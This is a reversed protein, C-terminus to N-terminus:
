GSASRQEMAAETPAIAAATLRILREADSPAAAKQDNDFFCWVDRGERCWADIRTAWDALGADPYNGHYRGTPGHNRIYVWDATALVPAPAVAHDSLCLAANHRALVAFVADCYWSPDRFEFAYVRRAPLRTLFQDLRETDVQVQPPLQFLVPGAKEGLLAIRSELLALSYDDCLLKKFHTIFRAAKWAFRFDDPTTDRWGAVAQATPSRYFVGNLETAAFRSAYYGLADKAKLGAPFFDGWWSAYHWGSTGIWARGRRREAPPGPPEFTSPTMQPFLAVGPKTGHNRPALM